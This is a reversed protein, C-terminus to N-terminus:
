AAGAPGPVSVTRRTGSGRQLTSVSGGEFPGPLASWRLTFQDRDLTADPALASAITSHEVERQVQTPTVPEVVHRLSWGGVVLTVAAAATALWRWSSAADTRAAATPQEARAVNWAVACAPCSAVHDLVTLDEDSMRQGRAAELLAEATPCAGPRIASATPERFVRQLATDDWRSDSM